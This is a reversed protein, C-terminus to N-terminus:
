MNYLAVAIKLRQAKTQLLMAEAYPLMAEADPHKAVVFLISFFFTREIDIWGFSEYISFRVM